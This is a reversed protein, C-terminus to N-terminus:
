AALLRLLQGGSLSLVYLSGDPAQEIDTVVGFGTGVVQANSEGIDGKSANDDVRDALPGELRLSRGDDALPYRLLSDTLVTGVWATNASDAGLADGTVFGIATLAPPHRYSLVPPSYTSGGLEVMRAQAEEATTALSNPDFSPNDLGDPSDSELKKYEAFREPPGQIQIWGSNSGAAFVNIEDWSDDGNETQWLAGSTPEFALGFSNRIGYVWVMALNEGAEGGRSAAEATFPNDAPVTGDDNLRLIVGSLHDDVPPSGDSINQNQGRQNQDGLMLYIKGDPGFALPGADHNGRIRGSTDTDLTASPLEVLNRDFVLKEDSWRFRDVRNGLAPLETEGDSDSGFLKDEGDGDGRWTWHLYVFPQEPFKPHAAIGLLGREDFSNVALDLVEGSVKGDRVWKVKGSGKETVLIGGDDIFAFSTPQELGSAVVTAKLSSDKLTIGTADPLASTASSEEKSAEEDGACASTGLAVVVLLTLLRISPAKVPRPSGLPWHNPRRM